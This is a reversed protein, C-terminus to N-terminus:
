TWAAVDRWVGPEGTKHAPTLACSGGHALNRLINRIDTLCVVNQTMPSAEGVIWAHSPDIQAGTFNQHEAISSHHERLMAARTGAVACRQRDINRGVHAAFDPPAGSTSRLIRRAGAGEGAGSGLSM